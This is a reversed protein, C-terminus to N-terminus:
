PRIAAPLWSGAAVELAAITASPVIPRRRSANGALPPGPGSRRRWGGHASGGCPSCSSSPIPRTSAGDGLGALVSDRFREGGAILRAATRDAEGVDILPLLAASREVLRQAFRHADIIEEIDPIREAETVPVPNLAHGSPKLRQGVADVTLYSGLVAYNDSGSGQYLTTNGYIM